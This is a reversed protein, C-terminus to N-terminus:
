ELMQKRKCGAQFIADVISCCHDPGSSCCPHIRGILGGVLLLHHQTVGGPSVGVVVLVVGQGRRQQWVLGASGFGRCALLDVDSYLYSCGEPKDQSGKKFRGMRSVKVGSKGTVGHEARRLDKQDQADDGQQLVDQDDCGYYLVLIEM